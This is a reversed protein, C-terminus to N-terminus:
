LARSRRSVADQWLKSRDDDFLLRLEDPATFWARQRLESELQGPGWGAYGFAFLYKQPGHRSAIDRLIAADSTVAVRGDIPLTGPHEYEASHLVFGMGPQVPGGAYIAISGNVGDGPQGLDALLQAIPREKVPRNVILGFAGSRDHRIVLIVAHAFRPDAMDPAAILFQGTLYDDQPAADQAPPVASPVPKALITTASAIVLVSLAWRISTM